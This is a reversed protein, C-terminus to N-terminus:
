PNQAVAVDSLFAKVVKAVRHPHSMFAYHGSTHLTEERVDPLHEALENQAAQLVRGDGETRILQVPVRVQELPPASGRSVAARMRLSLDKVPTRALNDRLYEWRGPDIPPFWTRHNAEQIRQWASYDGIKQPSLTGMRALLRETWSYRRHAFGAQLILAQCSSGPQAAAALAVLAGFSTAFISYPENGNARNLLQATKTVLHGPAPTVDWRVDTLLCEFQEKLLWALLSFQRWDGTFGGLFWLRPGTGLRLGSLAGGDESFQFPRSDREVGALVEQWALPAPCADAGAPPAIGAPAHTESM